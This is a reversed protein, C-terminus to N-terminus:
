EVDTEGAARWRDKLVRPPAPETGDWEQPVDAWMNWYFPAGEGDASFRWDFIKPHIESGDTKAACGGGDGAFLEKAQLWPGSPLGDRGRRVLLDRAGCRSLM